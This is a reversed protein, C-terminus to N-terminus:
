NYQLNMSKNFIIQAILLKILNIDQGNLVKNLVKFIIKM